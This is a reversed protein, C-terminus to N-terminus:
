IHGSKVTSNDSKLTIVCNPLGYNDLNVSFQWHEQLIFMSIGVHWTQWKALYQCGSGCGKAWKYKNNERLKEPERVYYIM